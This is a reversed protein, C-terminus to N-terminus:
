WSRNSLSVVFPIVVQREDQAQRLVKRPERVSVNAGRGLRINTDMFIACRRCTLLRGRRDSRRGRHRPIARELTAIVLRGAEKRLIATDGPLEFERPIRLAQNRGNRCPRVHRESEM